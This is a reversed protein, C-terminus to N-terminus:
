ARGEEKGPLLTFLAFLAAGVTVCIDAFNFVPFSIFLLEIYDVVAGYLARDILNGLGGALVLTLSLRVRLSLGRSLFVAGAVLLVVAASVVVVLWPRTRLMSFAAGENWAFSFRFVRALGERTGNEGLTLAWGKILRDVGVLLAALAACLVRDRGRNWRM